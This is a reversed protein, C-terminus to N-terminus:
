FKQNREDTKGGVYFQDSFLLINDDYFSLSSNLTFFTFCIYESFISCRDPVFEDFCAFTQRSPPDEFASQRKGNGGGPM